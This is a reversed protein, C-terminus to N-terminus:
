AKQYKCIIIQYDKEGRLQKLIDVERQKATLADDYRKYNMLKVVLSDLKDAEEQTGSTDQSWVSLPTFCLLLYVLIKKM